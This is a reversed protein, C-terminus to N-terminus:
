CKALAKRIVTIVERKAAPQNSFAAPLLVYAEPVSYTKRLLQRALEPSLGLAAFEDINARDIAFNAVLIAPVLCVAAVILAVTPAWTATGAVAIAITGLGYLQIRGWRSFADALDSALAEDVDAASAIGRSGRVVLAASVAGPTSPRESM